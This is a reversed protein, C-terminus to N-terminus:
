GIREVLNVSSFEPIGQKILDLYLPIAKKFERMVFYLEALAFQIAPNM